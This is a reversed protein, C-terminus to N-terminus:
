PERRAIGSTTTFRDFGQDYSYLLNAHAQEMSAVILLDGFDRNVTAYLELARLVAPRNRVRFHPLRVLAALMASVQPHPLHYLRPSSLVFVADAIVTDPATLTLQGQEVREFLAKAATQKKPDDGTILRVIVDMDVFPHTM